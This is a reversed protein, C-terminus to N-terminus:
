NIIQRLIIIVQVLLDKKINLLSFIEKAKQLYLKLNKEFLNILHNDKIFEKIVEKEEIKEEKQIINKKLIEELISFSSITKDNNEISNECIELVKKLYKDNKETILTIKELIKNIEIDQSNGMLLCKCLYECCYMINKENNDNQTSLKYVLEIEENNIKKDVNSIM